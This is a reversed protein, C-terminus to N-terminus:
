AVDIAMLLCRRGVNVAVGLDMTSVNVSGLNASSMCLVFIEMLEAVKGRLHSFIPVKGANL